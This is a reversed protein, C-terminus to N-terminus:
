QLYNIMLYDMDKTQMAVDKTKSCIFHHHHHRYHYIIIGLQSTTADISHSPESRGVSNVSIVRLEYLTFAELGSVDYEMSTIDHIEQFGGTIDQQSEGGDPQVSLTKSRYQIIYSLIPDNVDSPAANWGLSITSATVATVLLSTPPSPLASCCM